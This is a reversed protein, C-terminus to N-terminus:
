RKARWDTVWGPIHEHCFAQGNKGFFWGDAKTKGWQSNQVTNTCGTHSCHIVSDVSRYTESWQRGMWWRERTADWPKWGPTVDDRVIREIM